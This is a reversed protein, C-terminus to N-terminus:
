KCNKLSDACRWLSCMIRKVENSAHITDTRNNCKDLELFHLRAYVDSTLITNLCEIENANLIDSYINLISQSKSRLSELYYEMMKKISINSDLIEVTVYWLAKNLINGISNPTLVYMGSDCPVYIRDCTRANPIKSVGSSIESYLDALWIHLTPRQTKCKHWHPIKVTLVYVIFGTIIGIILDYVFNESFTPCESITSPIIMKRIIVVVCYCFLGIIYILIKPCIMM